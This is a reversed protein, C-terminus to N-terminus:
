ASEPLKVTAVAQAAIGEERGTFGLRETTTAKISVRNEPLQLLGAMHARMADRHPGIKPQECIITVDLHEIVGGRAAVKQRAAELFASSDAGKWQPDSPPFHMGIDGEALAGLLADVVAHLVVDADSHGHLKHDHAIDIGGLRIVHKAGAPTLAHVDYGMGIATRTAPMMAGELEAASTIKQLRAEGEVYALKHHAALWAAAEDTPEGAGEMAAVLAAYPFAQPTQIRLLDDRSVEQWQQHAFRRVTDAVPLAPVVGTDPALATLLRDIVAPSIFPRAADHVLVYDPKQAALAALGARVSDARTAGGSVPEPLALGQTTRDYEARHAPNIVVQVAAIASHAAFSEVSHRLMPKGAVSVYQKPLVGGARVGSGAAVVLAIIRPMVSM